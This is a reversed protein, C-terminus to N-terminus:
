QFKYTVNAYVFRMRPDYYTPDYGGQFYVGTGAIVPPPTDLLNKVGLEVRLNKMGTYAYQADYTAFFTITRPNGLNDFADAYGTQFHQILNASWDPEELLLELNHRWRMVVGGNQTATLANDADDVTRAVSAQVSGDPQEVNFKSMYTGTLITTIRGFSYNDSRWRFNAEFGAAEETGLNTNLTNVQLLEHTIPNRTVMSTYPAVGAAALSLVTGPALTGITNSVRIDFYDLSMTLHNSPEFVFGLSDQSSKEPQLNANGGLLNPYQNVAGNNGPDPIIATTALIQPAYLEVLSPARFGKAASARLVLEHVPQFRLSLKPSSNSGTNEYHDFRVALDGEFNRTFPADAEAFVADQLRSHSFPIIPTGYGSIDGLQAPGPAEVNFNEHVLIAGLALELPGGPLQAVPRTAKGDVGTTSRTAKTVMGNYNTGAIAAALSPNQPYVWPNFANLGSQAGNLLQFLPMQLQYGNNTDEEVRSQNYAVAADYDWQSATGTVGAVVRTQNASDTHVRLGGEYARYTVAIPSGVMNPITGAAGFTTGAVSALWASPYYPNSPLILLSPTVGSGNFAADNSVFSPNYPSPQEQVVSRTHAYLLESYLKTTSNLKFSLNGVLDQRDIDPVLPVYPAANFRCTVIGLSQTFNSSDTKQNPGGSPCNNTADLPNGYGFSGFSSLSPQLGYPVGTSWPGLVAGSPTASSDYVSQDWSNQAFSRGSGYLANDHEADASVMLNYRDADYDGFGTVFGIKEIQGGGPHAPTGLYADGEFGQYNKRLIINIVGAVADSGYVGSAGDQLIEIRDIASTPIANIDVSNGVTLDAAFNALRRGNLLVLTRQAGLGRLSVQSQGYTAQGANQANVLGCVGSTSTINMMLQEANTIGMRQIDDHTIVEVPLATEGEIRKISSGTIEIRELTQEPAAQAVAPQGPAQQSTDQQAFAPQGILIAGIGLAFACTAKRSQKM